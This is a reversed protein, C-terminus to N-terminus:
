LCSPPRERERERRHLNDAVIELFLFSIGRINFEFSKRLRPRLVTLVRYKGVREVLHFLAYVLSIDLTGRLLDALLFSLFIKTDGNELVIRTRDCEVVFKEDCMLDLCVIRRGREIREAARHRRDDTHIAICQAKAEACFRGCIGVSKTDCIRM